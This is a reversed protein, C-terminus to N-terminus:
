YTKVFGKSITYTKKKISRLPLSLYRYEPFDPKLYLTFSGFNFSSNRFASNVDDALQANKSQILASNRTQKAINWKRGNVECRVRM